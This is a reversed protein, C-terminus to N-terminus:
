SDDSVVSLIDAGYADLKKAGVGSIEALEDLSQPRARRNCRVDGPPNGGPLSANMSASVTSLVGEMRNTTLAPPVTAETSSAATPITVPAAESTALIAVCRQRM